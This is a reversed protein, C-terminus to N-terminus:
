RNGAFSTTTTMAIPHHSRNSFNHCLSCRPFTSHCQDAGAIFATFPHSNVEMKDLVVTFMSSFTRMGEEETARERGEEGSPINNFNAGTAAAHVRHEQPYLITVLPTTMCTLILAELVFM